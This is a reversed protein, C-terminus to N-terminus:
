AVQPRHLGFRDAVAKEIAKAVDIEASDADIVAFREPEAAALDLFGTRVSRHFDTVM